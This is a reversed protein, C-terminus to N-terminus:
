KRKNRNIVNEKKKWLRRLIRGKNEDLHENWLKKMIDEKDKGLELFWEKTYECEEIFHEM